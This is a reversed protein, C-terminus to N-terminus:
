ESACCTNQRRIRSFTESIRGRNKTRFINLCSGREEWSSELQLMLVVGTRLDLAFRRTESVHAVLRKARLEHINRRLLDKADYNRFTESIRDHNITRFINLCSGREEWAMVVGIPAHFVSRNAFVIRVSM